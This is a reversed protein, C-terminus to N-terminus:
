EKTSRPNRKFWLFVALAAFLGGIITWSWQTGLAEGLIRHLGVLFLVVALLGLVALLPAAAVWRAAKEFRDVTMSRIRGTLHELFDAIRTPFDDM